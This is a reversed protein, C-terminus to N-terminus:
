NNCTTNFEEQSLELIEYQINVLTKIQSEFQEFTKTSEFPGIYLTTTQDNLQCLNLRATKSTSNIIANKFIKYHINRTKIYVPKILNEEIKQEPQEAKAIPEPQKMSHLPEEKNQKAFEKYEQILNDSTTNKEESTAVPTSTMLIELKSNLRNINISDQDFNSSKKNPYQVVEINDKNKIIKTTNDEVKPPPPPDFVGLFFM